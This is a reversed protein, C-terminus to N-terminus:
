NGWTYPNYWVSTSEPKVPEWGQSLYYKFSKGSEAVEQGTMYKKRTPNWIMPTTGTIPENAKLEPPEPETLKGWWTNDLRDNIVERTEDKVATELRQMLQPGYKLGAYLAGGGLIPILWSSIGGGGNNTPQAGNQNGNDPQKVKYLGLPDTTAALLATGALATKGPNEKAWDLASKGYDKITDWVKGDKFSQHVDDAFQKVGDWWGAEKQLYTM